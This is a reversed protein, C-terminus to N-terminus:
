ASSDPLGQALEALAAEIHHLLRGTDPLSEPTTGVGLCISDDYSFVTINLAAGPPVIPLAYAGLLPAGGLYLRLAPGTPGEIAFFLLDLPAPRAAM